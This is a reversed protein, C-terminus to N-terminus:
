KDINVTNVIFPAMLATLKSVIQKYAFWKVVMIGVVNRSFRGCNGVVSSIVTSSPFLVHIIKCCYLCLQPDNGMSFFLKKNKVLM